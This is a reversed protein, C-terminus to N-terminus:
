CDSAPINKFNEQAIPLYNVNAVLMASKKVNKVRWRVFPTTTLLQLSLECREANYTAAKYESRLIREAILRKQKLCLHSCLFANCTYDSRLAM